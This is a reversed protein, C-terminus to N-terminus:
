CQTSNYTFNGATLKWCVNDEDLFYGTITSGYYTRAIATCTNPAGGGFGSFSYGNAIYTAYDASDLYVLLSQGGICGSQADCIYGIQALTYNSEPTASPTPTLTKTPTPSPSLGPTPTPTPTITHTPTITPTPTPTVAPYSVNFSSMVPYIARHGIFRVEYYYDAEEWPIFEGPVIYFNESLTISGSVNNPTAGTYSVNTVTQNPKFYTDGQIVHFSFISTSNDNLVFVEAGNRAWQYDFSITLVLKDNSLSTVFNTVTGTVSNENLDHIIDIDYEALDNNPYLFNKSDVQKIYKNSM